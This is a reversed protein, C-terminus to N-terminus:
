ISQRDSEDPIGPMQLAKERGKVEKVSTMEKQFFYTIIHISFKYPLSLFTFHICRRNISQSQILQFSPQQFLALF